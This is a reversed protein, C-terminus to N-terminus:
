PLTLETDNQNGGWVHIYSQGHTFFRTALVLKTGSQLDGGYPVDLDMERVQNPTLEHTGFDHVVQGAPVPHKKLQSWTTGQRALVIHVRNYQLPTLRVKPIRAGTQTRQPKNPTEYRAQAEAAGAAIASVLLCMGVAVLIRPAM